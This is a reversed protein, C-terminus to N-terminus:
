RNNKIKLNLEDREVNLASLEEEMDQIQELRDDIDGILRERRKKNESLLYEVAQRDM